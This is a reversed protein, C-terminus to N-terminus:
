FLGWQEAMAAALGQFTESRLKWRDASPAMHHTRHQNEIPLLDFWGKVNDTEGLPELNHLFLATKKSEPHGFMWPQIYQPKPMDTQTTLVGVPNEFCIRDSTLKCDNWFQYTWKISDLREQHKPMGAAYTGNGSVCLKTCEPHAIILDWHESFLIEYIDGQHHVGLTESDSPLLDCSIADHGAAIFADRVKGSTEMAVLVKM